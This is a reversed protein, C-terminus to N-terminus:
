ESAKLGFPAVRYPYLLREASRPSPYPINGMIVAEPFEYLQAVIEMIAIRIAMPVAAATAGYGAVYTIWIPNVYDSASAADPWSQSAALRLRGPTKKTNDQYVTAAAVQGAGATDTYEVLTVGSLPPRPLLLETSPWEDLYLIWTANILQRNTFKEAEQRAAPILYDELRADEAVHSIRLHTKVEALTVPEVAPGVSLELSWSM